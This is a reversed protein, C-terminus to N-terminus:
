WTLWRSALQSLTEQAVLYVSRPLKLQKILLCAQDALSAEKSRSNVVPKTGGEVDCSM